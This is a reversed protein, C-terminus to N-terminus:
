EVSFLKQLQYMAMVFLLRQFSSYLVTSQSVESTLKSRTYSMVHEM